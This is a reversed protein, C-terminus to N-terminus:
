RALTCKSIGFADNTAELGHKKWFTLIKARRKAEDTIMYRFRISRERMYLWGTTNKLNSRIRM